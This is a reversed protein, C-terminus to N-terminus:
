GGESGDPFLVGMMDASTSASVCTYAMGCRKGVRATWDGGPVENLAVVDPQWRKLLDGIEEPTGRCGFQVNYAIFRVAATATAPAEGDKEPAADATPRLIGLLGASCLALLRISSPHTKM